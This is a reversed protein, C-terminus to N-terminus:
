ADVPLIQVLGVSPRGDMRTPAARITWVGAPLPVPAQEPRGGGPYEV